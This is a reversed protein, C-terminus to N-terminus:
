KKAFSSPSAWYTLLETEPPSTLEPLSEESVDEICSSTDEPTDDLALPYKALARSVRSFDLSSAASRILSIRWPYIGTVVSFLFRKVLRRSDSLIHLLFIIHLIEDFSFAKRVTDRKDLVAFAAYHHGRFPSKSLSAIVMLSITAPWVPILKSLILITSAFYTSHNENQPIIIFANSTQCNSLKM